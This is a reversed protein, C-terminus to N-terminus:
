LKLLYDISPKMADLNLEVFYNKVGGTKAATFVKKWDVIGSGVPVTKKESDSWDQLHLSIFRGPYKTLYAEAKYGLNIVSVQFQMKVLKPDLTRMLDDYVLVGDIEKFEFHHNHFGAQIGAKKTQEGINNMEDAARRWDSLRAQQPLAFTSVIMQKLGLEKAFAIREPLHEKLEKFQYHSSECTLGASQITRRMEAAPMNVLSGFGSKEYGPPSCMEVTRYGMASVQKLIGVFDKGIADRVPYLQTGIPLSLPTAHLYPVCASAATAVATNQLFQRRSTNSM